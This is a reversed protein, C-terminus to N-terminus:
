VIIGVLSELGVAELGQILTDKLCPFLTTLTAINAALKGQVVDIPNELFSELLPITPFLAELAALSTELNVILALLSEVIGTSVVDCVEGAAGSPTPAALLVASASASVDLQISASTLMSSFSYAEAAANEVSTAAVAVGIEATIYSMETTLASLIATVSGVPGAARRRMDKSRKSHADAISRRSPHGASLRNARPVVPYSRTDIEAAASVTSIALVAGILFSKICVM